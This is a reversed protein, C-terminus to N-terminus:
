CGVRSWVAHVRLCPGARQSPEGWHFQGTQYDGGRHQTMVDMRNAANILGIVMVLGALQAEDYHKAAEAWAGDTVGGAADAIRAGQEALELAAREADTFVKAERWAAVLTLRVPDRGGARCRRQPRRPASTAANIQSARLMMLNQTTSPLASDKLIAKSAV